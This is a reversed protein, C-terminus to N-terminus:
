QKEFGGVVLTSENSQPKTRGNKGTPKDQMLDLIDSMEIRPDEGRLTELLEAPVTHPFNRPLSSFFRFSRNDDNHIIYGELDM